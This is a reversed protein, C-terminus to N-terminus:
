AKRAFDARELSLNPNYCPDGAVLIDRWKERFKASEEAFRLRKEETDEYGRSKSEFHFWESDPLYVTRKGNEKIKLCYDIDNFAVRFAESFGGAEEFADRGSMLCAGTVASVDQALVARREYGVYAGPMTIFAHGATGGYGIVVGAHQISGDAYYLKAGVAGVGPCRCYDAMRGIAAPSILETDNNLFLLYEGKAFGVGYNNIKSYHFEGEWTVLRVRADKEQLRRYNEFTEERESSNEVIIIEYDQYESRQLISDVCRNLDDAHDKNPIIISVLPRGQWHFETRWTGAWRGKVARAPLGERRYHETLLVPGERWAEATRKWEKWFVRRRDHYLIRPIHLIKEARETCWLLLGYTWGAGAAAIGCKKEAQEKEGPRQVASTWLERKLAFARRIYDCSAFLEENYDPKFHPRVPLRRWVTREDEDTYLFDASPDKEIVGTLIELGDAALVDGDAPFLAYDGSAAQRAEELTKVCLLRWNTYTQRGWQRLRRRRRGAGAGNEEIYIIDWFVTDRWASGTQKEARKTETKRYWERYARNEKGSLRALTDRGGCVRIRIMEEKLLAKITAFM